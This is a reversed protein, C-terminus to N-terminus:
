LVTDCKMNTFTSASIARVIWSSRAVIAKLMNEEDEEHLDFVFSPWPLTARNQGKRGSSELNSRVKRRKCKQETQPRLIYAFLTNQAAATRVHFEARIRSRM